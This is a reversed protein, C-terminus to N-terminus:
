CEKIAIYSISSIQLLKGSDSDARVAGPFELYMCELDLKGM